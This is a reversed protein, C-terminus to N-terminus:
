GRSSKRSRAGCLIWTSASIRMCSGTACASSPMGPFPRSSRVRPMPSRPRLKASSKSRKSSRCSSSVIRTWTVARGVPRSPRPRVRPTWCTVSVSKTMRACIARTGHGTRTPSFLPKLGGPDAPGGQAGRVRGVVGNGPRRRRTPRAHTRAPEFEVLVDIDSDPGFDERLASGFIALRRIGNARCVAALRDHSVVVQPNM